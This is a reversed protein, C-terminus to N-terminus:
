CRMCQRVAINSSPAGAARARSRPALTLLLAGNRRAASNAVAVLSPVTKIRLVCRECATSTSRRSFSVRWRRAVNFQPAKSTPSQSVVSAVTRLSFVCNRPTRRLVSM